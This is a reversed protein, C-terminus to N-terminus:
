HKHGCKCGPTHLHNGLRQKPQLSRIANERGSAMYGHVTPASLILKTLVGECKPCNPARANISHRAELRLNCPICKYDYNPM